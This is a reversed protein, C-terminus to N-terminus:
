ILNVGASLRVVTFKGVGETVFYVRVMELKIQLTVPISQVLEVGIKKLGM